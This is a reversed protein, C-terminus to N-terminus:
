LNLFAYTSVVCLTKRVGGKIRFAASSVDEFSIKLPNDANCMPDEISSEAVMKIFIFYFLVIILLECFVIPSLFQIKWSFYSKALLAAIFCHSILEKSHWLNYYQLEPFDRSRVFAHKQDVILLSSIPPVNLM